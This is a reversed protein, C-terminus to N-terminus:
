YESCKSLWTRYEGSVKNFREVNLFKSVLVGHNQTNQLNHLYKPVRFAMLVISYSRISDKQCENHDVFLEVAEFCFFQYSNGKAVLLNQGKNAFDDTAHM